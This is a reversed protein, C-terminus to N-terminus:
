KQFQEIVQQLAEQSTGGIIVAIQDDDSKKLVPKKVIVFVPTGEIHLTKAFAMNDKIRRAVLDSKRDQQFRKVDLQIDKAFASIKEEHMFTDTTMFNNHFELYKGQLDAALAAKSALLSGQGFIPLERFIVKLNPTTEVLKHVVSSMERCHGCRYDFFEVLVIQGNPNGAIPAGPSKLVANINEKVAQAIEAQKAMIRKQQLAQSAEILVEPHQVLYAHIMEEIRTEQSSTFVSKAHSVGGFILVFSMLCIFIKGIKTM